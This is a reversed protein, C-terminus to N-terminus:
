AHEEHSRRVRRPSRSVPNAAAVSSQEARDGLYFNAVEEAVSTLFQGVWLQRALGRDLMALGLIVVRGNLEDVLGADFLARTRGYWEDIPARASTTPSAPLRLRGGRDKAFEPHRQLIADVVQRASVEGLSLLDTRVGELTSSLRIPTELEAM